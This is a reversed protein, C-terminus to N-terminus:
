KGHYRDLYGISSELEPIPMNQHIGPNAILTKRKSGLMDLLKLATERPVLEDDWQVLFRVPCSLKPASSIM